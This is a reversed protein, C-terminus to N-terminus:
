KAERVKFGAFHTQADAKTWLGVKGADQFTDDQVDLYLQGNLYCQIHSGQHVIRLAHWQGAPIKMGASALQTRKGAVVKYLRYNDELPNMRAVYYNNADKYRWVAGGGQDLKGAVAKFALSLDIDAFSTQQAVCLNFLRNPGQGSTQALVKKGDPATADEVVKWVSGPGEGTKAASWGPPLQGLTAEDLSMVFPAAAHSSSPGGLWAILPLLVLTGITRMQNLRPSMKKWFLPPCPFTRL